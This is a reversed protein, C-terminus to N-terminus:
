DRTIRKASRRPIYLVDEPHEDALSRAWQYVAWRSVGVKKAVWFVSRGEAVSVLGRLRRRELAKRSSGAEVKLSRLVDPTVELLPLTKIEVGAWELFVM